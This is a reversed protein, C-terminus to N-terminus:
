NARTHGRRVRHRRLSPSSASLANAYPGAETSGNVAGQYNFVPTPDSTGATAGTGAAGVTASSSASGSGSTTLSGYAVFIAPGAAAGGGGGGGSSSAASGVGATGNGGGVLASLAGGGGASGEVSADGGPGGSGGGGGPGGAGGSGGGGNTGGSTGPTGEGGGGGGGGFGGAGGFGGPAGNSNPPPPTPLAVFSAAIAGGAGGGGFGGAGGPGGIGVGGPWAMGGSYGSAGGLNSGYGSSAAGGMGSGLYNTEGSGGGGAGGGGGGAGGNQLYGSGSGLAGSSLMGAGPAGGGTANQSLASQGMGGGGSGSYSQLTGASGGIGGASTCHLFYDNVVSVVATAQNVFLGAGLGAGGGGPASSNDGGAGGQALANQIQLDAITVTGADVFFARYLGAGDIIVNGFSSGDISQNQEIPPLPAALTITCPLANACMALTDFVITNGAPANCMANRLDGPSGAPCVGPTSGPATDSALTVVTVGISSVSFSQGLSSAGASTKVTVTRGGPSAGADIAFTATMSTATAVVRSVTVDGGSVLVSTAGTAFHGTLTQSLTTGIQGSGTGISSLVPTPAFTASAPSVLGSANAEISASAIAAGSYSLFAEDASSLLEGAGPNDAGVTSISTAGSVDQDTLTVPVSYSGVITYGDADRVSAYLGQPQSFGSGISGGPLLLGVSSPTGALTLNLANAVGLRVTLAVGKAVSLVNSGIHFTGNAPAADYTTVAATYNGQLLELNFTCAVLGGVTNCGPSKPTLAFAQSVTTPGTLSLMMGKTAPSIYHANRRRGRPIRLRLTLTGKRKHRQLSTFPANLSQVEVGSSATAGDIAKQPLASSGQGGCAILLVSICAAAVIRVIRTVHFRM